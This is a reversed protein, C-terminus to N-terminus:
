RLKQSKEHFPDRVRRACVIGGLTGKRDIWDRMGRLPVGYTHGEQEIRRTTTGVDRRLVARGSALLAEVRAEAVATLAVAVIAGLSLSSYVANFSTLLLAPPCTLRPRNCNAIQPKSDLSGAM